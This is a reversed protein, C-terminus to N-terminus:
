SYIVLETVMKSHRWAIEGLMRKTKGSWKTIATAASDSAPENRIPTVSSVSSIPIMTGRVRAWTQLIAPISTRSRAASATTIETAVPSRVPAVRRGPIAPQAHSLIADPPRPTRGLISGPIGNPLRTTLLCPTRNSMAPPVSARSITVIRASSSRVGPM